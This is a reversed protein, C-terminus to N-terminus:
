IKFLTQSKQNNWNDKFFCSFKSDNVSGIGNFEFKQGSLIIERKEIKFKTKM